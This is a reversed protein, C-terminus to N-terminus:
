RVGIRGPGSGGCIAFFHFHWGCVDEKGHKESERVFFSVCVCVCVHVCSCVHMCVQETANLEEAVTRLREERARLESEMQLRESELQREKMMIQACREGPNINVVQDCHLVVM